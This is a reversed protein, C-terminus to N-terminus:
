YSTMYETDIPVVTSSKLPQKQMTQLLQAEQQRDLAICPM